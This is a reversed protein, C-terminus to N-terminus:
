ERIRNNKKLYVKIFRKVLGSILINNACRALLRKTFPWSKDSYNIAKEIELQNSNVIIHFLFRQYYKKNIETILEDPNKLKYKYYEILQLQIDHIGKKYNYQKSIDKSHSASNELVRYVATNDESLCHVKSEALFFAFTVFSGDVTNFSPKLSMLERRYMWTMPGAYPTLKIWDHLNNYKQIQEKKLCNHSFTGNKQNYKSFNSYCMGCKPHSELYDVQKQLKLPDTWYDDGECLAIYKAHNYWKDIYEYKPKRICYHNYKLFLVAFFCNINTKHRAFILVYDDTEENRVITNDQLDFHQELYKRIVNQERDTSADDVITCIFPFNTIQRTFGNLTEVIYSAHNFTYCRACVKYDNRIQNCM